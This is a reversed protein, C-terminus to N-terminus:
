AVQSQPANAAPGFVDPRLEHRSVGTAAEIRGALKPGAKKNGSAIMYLTSPSCDAAQAVRAIVPCSLKATGGQSRIYDPLNMSRIM